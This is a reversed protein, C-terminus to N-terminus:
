LIFRDGRHEGVQAEPGTKEAKEKKVKVNGVTM